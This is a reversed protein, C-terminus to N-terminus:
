NDSPKDLHDVVFIKVPGRSPQLHLGLQEELAQALPPLAADEDTASGTGLEPAWKVKVDIKGDYGTRDNVTRELHTALYEAVTTVPIDHATVGNNGWMACGSCMDYVKKEKDGPDAAPTLKLGKKSPLLDYTAMEKTEVHYKLGFREVLLALLLARHQEQSLKDVATTDADLLKATIDYRQNGAWDPEGSIQDKRAHLASMLMWEIMVNEAKLQAGRWDLRMFDHGPPAPKVTSIDYTAPAATQANVKGPMAAVTAVLVLTPLILRRRM